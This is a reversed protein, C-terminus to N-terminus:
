PRACMQWRDFAEGIQRCTDSFAKSNDIVVQCHRRFEEQSLQSAFVADIRQDSYGRSSKLRERRVEEDAHIYWLEQCIKEYGGEILLAAEIVLLECGQQRQREIERSIWEKVAPHIIENLRLLEEPKGFVLGGLVGRDISGDERLLGKVGDRGGFAQLVGQYAPGGPEMVLHGVQDAQIVCAGYHKELYALIESKGAGVGGTIGIIRMEKTDGEAGKDARNEIPRMGTRVRM